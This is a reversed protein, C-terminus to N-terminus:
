QAGKLYAALQRLEKREDATLDTRVNKAYRRLLCIRAAIVVASEKARRPGGCSGREVLARYWPEPLRTNSRTFRWRKSAAPGL